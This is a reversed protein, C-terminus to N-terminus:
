HICSNMTSGTFEWPNSPVSCARLFCKGPTASAACRNLIPVACSDKWTPSRGIGNAIDEWCESDPVPVIGTVPFSPLCQTSSWCPWFPALALVLCASAGVGVTLNNQIKEPSRSKKSYLRKRRRVRKAM